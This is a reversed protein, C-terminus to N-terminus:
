VFLQTVTAILPMTFMSLITMLGVAEAALDPRCDYQQAFISAAEATPCANLLVFPAYFVPNLDFLSLVLMVTLPIVVLRVAAAAYLIPTAFVRRLDVHSFQAGVVVSALPTGMGSLHDLSGQVPAPFEFGTFFVVLGIVFAVTGPNLAARKISGEGGVIYSGHSYMFIYCFVICLAAALMADDGWISRVLPLGIFAYNGYLVSFRLIASEKEGRRRFLLKSAIIAASFCALTILAGNGLLTMMEVTKDMKFANVIACPIVVNMLLTAMQKVGVEKLIKYKTLFYGVAMMIVLTLVQGFILVFQDLM